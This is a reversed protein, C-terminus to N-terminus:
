AFRDLRALLATPARFEEKSLASHALRARRQWEQEMCAITTKLAYTIRLPHQPALMASTALQANGV